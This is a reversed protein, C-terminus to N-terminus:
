FCVRTPRTVPLATKRGIGVQGDTNRGWCWLTRDARIACGHYQGLGLSRFGDPAEVEVKTPAVILDQEPIGLQRDENLGWCYLAGETTLGCSYSRGGDVQVWTENSLVAHPEPEQYSSTPPGIGLQGNHNGGWCYMKGSERIGCTHFSGAGIAVWDTFCAEKSSAAECGVRVRSSIVTGGPVGLENSDNLGWCYAVGGAAIACTHEGGAAIEAYGSGSLVPTSEFEDTTGLGLDGDGNYGWCWLKGDGSLGCTHRFGSVISELGPPDDFSRPEPVIAGVDGGVEGQFNQGWCARGGLDICCTHNGGLTISRACATGHAVVPTASDIGKAGNGLRGAGLNGGFSSSGWCRVTGDDLSACTHTEGADAELVRIKPACSGSKCTEGPCGCSLGDTGTCGSNCRECEGCSAREPLPEGAPGADYCSGVCRGGECTRGEGCDLRDECGDEFVLDLELLERDRYGASARLEVFAAGAADLLEAHLSFRRTADGDRPILPVRALEAGERDIPTERSLVADGANDKVEIRFTDARALAEPEARFTIIVQTAPHSTCGWAFAAPVLLWPSARLPLAMM